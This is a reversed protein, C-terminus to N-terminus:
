QTELLSIEMQAIKKSLADTHTQVLQSNQKRIDELTQLAKRNLLEM